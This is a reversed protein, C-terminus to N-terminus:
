SDRPSPSTYLLCDISLGQYPQTAVRTSHKGPSQKTQKAQICTPCQDLVSTQQSFNPVGDIFKHANYLYEDCPHGLRQHWLLKATKARIAHIPVATEVVNTFITKATPIDIDLISIEKWLDNRQRAATNQSALECEQRFAADAKLAFASSTACNAYPSEQDLDPLIHHISILAIM